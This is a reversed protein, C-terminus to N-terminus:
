FLTGRSARAILGADDNAPVNVRSSVPYAEMWESSRPHLLGRVAEYEHVGSDLWLKWSERPIMVPMRNHITQMLDNPETTIIASSTVIQGSDNDYWEDWVAGLAFYGGDAPHIWYPQRHKGSRQWEYFGNVPVLARRREFSARFTPKEAVSEARANVPRRGAERAWHPILGFSTMTYRRDNLLAPLQQTPAINYRPTLIGIDNVFDGLFDGIDGIFLGDSFLAVRACM